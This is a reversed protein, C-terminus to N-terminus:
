ELHYKGKVWQLLGLIAIGGGAMGVFMGLMMWFLIPELNAVTADARVITGGLFGFIPAFLAIFGGVLMLRICRSRHAPSGTGYKTRLDESM